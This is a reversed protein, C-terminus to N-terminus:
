VLANFLKELSLLHMTPAYKQIAEERSNVAMKDLLDQNGLYFEIKHALDDSDGPIFLDGTFGKKVCATLSGLHSAIVPTGCSYSELISNPLNEFWLSPVISFLAKRLFDALESANLKGVFQISNNMNNNCIISKLDCIYPESGTGAIKLIVDSPTRKKFKIFANVLIHLGKVKEIRGIYCIYNNKILNDSPCFTEIDTFTPICSLKEDPWGAELMMNYMFTNTLVFHDILSFYGRLNHFYTAMANLISATRSDKVCKYRISNIISGDVCLTCPSNDRICHSQPCLMAYDSIRVVIPINKNKLAVLLSPSLKRLYHLIYAIKPQTDDILESVSRKVEISYFLRSFTKLFTIPTLRHQDFYVDDRTGIPSAFYGAYETNKNQSYDISFPIVEHNHRLLQNTVNFMYREPGGSIFYRYNALLIKM